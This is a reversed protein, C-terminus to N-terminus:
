FMEFLLNLPGFFKLDRNIGKTRTTKYIQKEAMTIRYDWESKVKEKTLKNLSDFSEVVTNFADKIDKETLKGKGRLKKFTNQLKEALGEFAM